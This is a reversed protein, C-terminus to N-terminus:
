QSTRYIADSIILVDKHADVKHVRIIDANQQIAASVAAATAWERDKATTKGTLGGLYAKRSTGVLVPYGELGAKAALRYSM